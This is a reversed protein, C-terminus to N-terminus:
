VKLDEGRFYKGLPKYLLMAVIETVVIEAAMYWGNYLFSYVWVNTMPLGMFEEPMWVGWIWAGSVLHCLFRATFTVAIGV